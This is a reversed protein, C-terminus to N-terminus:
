ATVGEAFALLADVVRRWSGESVLDLPKEYDLCPVPTRLWSRATDDGLVRRALDLVAKLELLREESQRRPSVELDQWRAVSRPSAHVVRAVDGTDLVDTALIEGVVTV